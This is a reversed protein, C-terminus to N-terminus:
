LVPSLVLSKIIINHLPTFNMIYSSLLFHLCFCIHNMNLLLCVKHQFVHIPKEAHKRVLCVDFPDVRSCVNQALVNKEEQYFSNRYKEIIEKTLVDAFTELFSIENELM